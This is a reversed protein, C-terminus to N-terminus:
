AFYWQDRFDFSQPNVAHPPRHRLYTVRLTGFILVGRERTPDLLEL